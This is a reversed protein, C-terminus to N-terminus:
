EGEERKDVASLDVGLGAMGIFAVMSAAVLLLTAGQESKSHERM